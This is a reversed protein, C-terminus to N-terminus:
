CLRNSNPSRKLRPDVSAFFRQQPRADCRRSLMENHSRIFLPSRRGIQIPLEINEFLKAFLHIEPYIPRRFNLEVSLYWHEPSYNDDQDHEPKKAEKAVNATTQDM